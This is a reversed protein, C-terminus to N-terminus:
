QFDLLYFCCPLLQGIVDTIFDSLSHIGDAIMATSNGVIGAIVKGVTLIFNIFSGQLTVNKIQKIRKDNEMHTNIDNM